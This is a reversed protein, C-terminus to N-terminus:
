ATAAPQAPTALLPLTVTFCAGGSPLNAATLDGGFRRAAERCLYLGLGNGGEARRTTEFPSFLRPLVEAPIGRGSDEVRVEARRRGGAPGVRVTLTGGAPMAKAANAFLNLFLRQLDSASGELTLDGDAYDRKVIIGRRGLVEDSLSLAEELSELLAFRGAGATEGRARDLTSKALEQCFAAARDITQLDKRLSAELGDQELRLSAYGRIVMLPTSLDHAAAASALGLSALAGDRERAEQAARLESAVRDLQAREAAARASARREAESLLWASGAAAWLVGTKVALEFLVSPGWAADAGFYLAADCAAAGAAILALARGRLLLAASFLPLLYLVWLKSEAGGSRSQIAAIVAFTAMTFAAHPAARRPWRRVAAAAALSAALLLAFLWLIDPYVLDSNDRALYALAGLVSWLAAEYRVLAPGAANESM